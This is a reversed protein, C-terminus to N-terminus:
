FIVFYICLVATTWKFILVKRGSYEKKVYAIIQDSEADSGKFINLYPHVVKPTKTM